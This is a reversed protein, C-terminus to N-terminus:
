GIHRHTTLIIYCLKADTDVRNVSINIMQTEYITCNLALFGHNKTFATM